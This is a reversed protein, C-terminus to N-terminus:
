RITVFDNHNFLVHILNERARLHPDTAPPVTSPSGASWTTLKSRDSLLATQQRLFQECTSQEVATAARGLVQEFGARVFAKDSAPPHGVENSLDRALLRAHALVL